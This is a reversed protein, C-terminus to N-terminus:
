TWARVMHQRERVPNLFFCPAVDLAINVGKLSYGLVSSIYM